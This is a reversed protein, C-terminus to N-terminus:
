GPNSTIWDAVRWGDEFKQVQWWSRYQGRQLIVAATKGRREVVVRDRV